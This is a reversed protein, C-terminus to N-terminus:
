PRQAEKAMRVSGRQPHKGRKDLFGIPMPLVTIFVYLPVTTPELGFHM